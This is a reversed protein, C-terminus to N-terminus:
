AFFCLWVPESAGKSFISTAYLLTQLGRDGSLLRQSMAKAKEYFMFYLASFPGFSAVTAAYGQSAPPAHAKAM